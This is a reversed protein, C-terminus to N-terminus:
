HPNPLEQEKGSEVLVREYTMTVNGKDDRTTSTQKVLGFPVDASLWLDGTETTAPMSEHMSEYRVTYSYHDAKRGDITETGIFKATPEYRAANKAIAEISAADLPMPEMEGSAIQGATIEPMYDILRRELAFGKKLTYRNHVPPYQEDAFKMLLEIRASGEEDGLRTMTTTAKMEPMTDSYRAWSGPPTAGFYVKKWGAAALAPALLLIPLALLIRRM